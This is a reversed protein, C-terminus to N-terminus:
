RDDTDPNSKGTSFLWYALWAVGAVVAFQLLKGWQFAGDKVFAGVVILTMAVLVMLTM